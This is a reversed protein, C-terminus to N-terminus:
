DIFLVSLFSQGLHLHTYPDMGAQHYHSIDPRSFPHLVSHHSTLDVEGRPYLRSRRPALDQDRLGRSLLQCRNELKSLLHLDFCLPDFVGDGERFDQSNALRMPEKQRFFRLREDSQSFLDWEHILDDLCAMK